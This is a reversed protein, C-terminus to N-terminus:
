IAESDFYLSFLSLELLLLFELFSSEPGREQNRRSWKKAIRYGSKISYKGNRSATHPNSIQDCSPLFMMLAFVNFPM